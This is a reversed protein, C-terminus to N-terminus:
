AAIQQFKSIANWVRAGKRTTMALPAFCDMLRAVQPLPHLSAEQYHYKFFMCRKMKECFLIEFFIM